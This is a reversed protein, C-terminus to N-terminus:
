RAGLGGNGRDALAVACRFARLRALLIACASERHHRLAPCASWDLFPRLQVTRWQRIRPLGPWVGAGGASRHHDRGVETMARPTSARSARPLIGAVPFVDSSTIVCG